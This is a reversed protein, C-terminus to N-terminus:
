LAKMPSSRAALKDTSSCCCRRVAIRCAPPHKGKSRNLKQVEDTLFKEVNIPERATSSSTYSGLKSGNALAAFGSIAIFGFGLYKLM